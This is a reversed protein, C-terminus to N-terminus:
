SVTLNSKDDDVFSCVEAAVKLKDDAMIGGGKMNRKITNDPNLNITRKM